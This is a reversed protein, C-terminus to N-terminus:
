RTTSASATWPSPPSAATPPLRCSRRPREETSPCATSGRTGPRGGKTAVYFVRGGSVVISDANVAAALTTPSGGGAPAKFLGAGSGGQNTWYVNADDAAVGWVMSQGSAVTTYSGGCGAKDCSVVLGNALSSNDPFGLSFVTTSNIAVNTVGLSELTTTTGDKLAVRYVPGVEYSAVYAYQGDLAIGAPQSLNALLEPAGSGPSGPGAPVPLCAAPPSPEPVTGSDVVTPAGSSGGSPGGSSTGTGPGADGEAAGPAIAGGCASVALAGFVFALLGRIPRM